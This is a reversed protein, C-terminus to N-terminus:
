IPAALGENQVGSAGLVCNKVSRVIGPAWAVNLVSPLGSPSAVLKAIKELVGGDQFAPPRDLQQDGPKERAKPNTRRQLRKTHPTQKVQALPNGQVQVM